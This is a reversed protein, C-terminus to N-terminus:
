RRTMADFLNGAGEEDVEKMDIYQLADSLTSTQEHDPYRNIFKFPTFHADRLHIVHM